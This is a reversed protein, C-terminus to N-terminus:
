VDEDRRFRDLLEELTDIEAQKYRSPYNAYQRKCIELQNIIEDKTDPMEMKGFLLTDVIM